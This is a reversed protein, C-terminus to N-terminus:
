KLEVGSKAGVWRVVAGERILAKAQVSKVGLSTEARYTAIGTQYIQGDVSEEPGQEFATVHSLGFSQIQGSSLSKRMVSIVDDTAAGGETPLADRNPLPTGGESTSASETTPQTVPQTATEAPPPAFPDAHNSFPTSDPQTAPTSPEVPASHAPDVQPQETAPPATVAGTSTPEATPVPEVPSPTPETTAQVAPAPEPKPEAAAVPPPPNMELQEILDTEAIPVSVTYATDGPRVVAKGSEIRILRVKSGAAVSMTVGTTADAVKLEVKTVVQKPLQEPALTAPDLGSATMKPGPQPSPVAVAAPPAAPRILLPRLAPESLYGALGAVATGALIVTSKMSHPYALSQRMRSFIKEQTCQRRRLTDSQLFPPLLRQPQPIPEVGHGGHDQDLMEM